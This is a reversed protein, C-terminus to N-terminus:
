SDRTPPCCWDESWSDKYAVLVGCAHCQERCDVLTEGRRSRQYDKLLFVKRVGTSIVDWPFVEEPARERHAYFGPDLGIEEFAQRWAAEDRQEDWADFRAGLEWARRIVAGLRRDGRALAAELVTAEPDSYDLKLGRGRLARRLLAQKERISDSLELPVWQFPTHPKPVFTNVSVNVQVKRGHAKRGIRWVERALDAIAQVDEMREGPLGILFYLKITRWGRGFVERAVDLMQETAIPKNITARLRETAAEPAFTFGTRRGQAAAETLEVSFSDARLAPLSISLHRDGFREIIAQVLREIDSYDSSSLSLLGVEEFGTQPLIDAIAALVEEIPRERVPRTVVGAHCFRCGRTCGRQIEIAARNHSVDVNPVILRTPPPPLPSVVRKFVPVPVDPAGPVIAAVTASRGSGTSPDANYRVGYFRPVYIGPIRALARLQAERSEERVKRFGQVLEVAAREGDGIVFADVFDAVPEPNFAAHGGAVVLPYSADRDRARVPLGALDLMELLNTYLQESPLSFGVIDFDAVSRKSELSYLPIGAERMAAIMDVWPLYAREALTGPLANLIDYLIAVGLNSMGLDYIDPFALCVRVSASDWDKVVSNYEGGVYRGPKRVTPLIRELRNLDIKAM